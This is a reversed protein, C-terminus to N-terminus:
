NRTVDLHETFADGTMKKDNFYGRDLRQSLGDNCNTNGKRLDGDCDDYVKGVGLWSRVRCRM